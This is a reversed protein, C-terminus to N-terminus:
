KRNTTSPSSRHLSIVLICIIGSRITWAMGAGGDRDAAARRSLGGGARNARKAWRRCPSAHFDRAGLGLNATKAYIGDPFASPDCMLAEGFWMLAEGPWMLAKGFRMLPRGFWMLATGPRMVPEGLRMVAQGLRMLGAGPRMVPGGLWRVATGLRMLARAPRMLAKAPLPLAPVPM